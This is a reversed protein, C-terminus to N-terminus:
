GTFWKKVKDSINGSIKADPRILGDKKPCWGCYKCTVTQPMEAIYKTSSIMSYGDDKVCLSCCMATAEKNRFYWKM